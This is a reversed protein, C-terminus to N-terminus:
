HAGGHVYLMILDNDTDKVLNDYKERISIDPEPATKDVNKRLGVWEAPVTAYTPYDYIGKGDGLIDITRRIAENIGAGHSSPGKYIATPLRHHDRDQALPCSQSHRCRTSSSAIAGHDRSRQYRISEQITKSLIGTV